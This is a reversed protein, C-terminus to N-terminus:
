SNSSEEIPMKLWAEVTDQLQQQVQAILVLIEVESDKSSTTKALQAITEM